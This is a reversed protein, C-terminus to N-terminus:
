ITSKEQVLLRFKMPLRVLQRVRQGHAVAPTFVMKPLAERVAEAFLPHSAQVVAFSGPDARGLTDVAFEVLVEGQVGQERLADPYNPGASNPDRTAASDVQDETYLASALTQTGEDVPEPPRTAQKPERTAAVPAVAALPDVGTLWGSTGAGVAVFQVREGPPEQVRDPPLLYRISIFEEGTPGDHAVPRAAAGFSAAHVATSALLAGGAFRRARRSELLRLIM